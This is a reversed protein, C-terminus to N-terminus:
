PASLIANNAIGLQHWNLNSLRAIDSLDLKAYFTEWCDSRWRGWKKIFWSPKQARALDTARGSRLSHSSYFEPKLGMKIIMNKILNNMAYQALPKKNLQMFLPKDWYKKKNLYSDRMKVFRKIIHVPCIGTDCSCICEVKGCYLDYKNTKHKKFDIILASIRKKPGIFQLDKRLVVKSWDAKSHPSYEGIRGGYFYGVCLASAILNGMYAAFDVYSMAKQMHFFTFPNRLRTESPKRKRYGRFM